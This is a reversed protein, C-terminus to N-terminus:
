KVSDMWDRWSIGVQTAHELLDKHRVLGCYHNVDIPNYSLNHWLCAVLWKKVPTREDGLHAYVRLVENRPNFGLDKHGLDMLFFPMPSGLLWKDLGLVYGLLM